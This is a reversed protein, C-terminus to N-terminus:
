ISSGALPGGPSTDLNYSKGGDDCVERESANTTVTQYCVHFIHQMNAPEANNLVTQHIFRSVDHTLIRQFM